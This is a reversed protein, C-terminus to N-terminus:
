LNRLETNLIGEVYKIYLEFDAHGRCYYVM